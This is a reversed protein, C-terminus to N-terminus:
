PATILARYLGEREILENHTGRQVIEGRDIVVIEDADRIVSLRHAIIICACGRRRLKDDIELETLPDLAATAEDLVLVAPNTAFARAIELRQRQGGSFNRGHEEVPTDYKGPRLMIDDHVAADRLAQTIDLDATTPNWLAVNERVTGEFLMIDQDVYAITETLHSPPIERIPRDDVTVTGSWPELLGCILKGITSKGSGSGGVLALRQGPRILLNFNEILPPEKSSYGFSLNELRVLGRAIPPSEVNDDNMGRVAREEPVYNRVDDLRAIDGKITQLNAGFQVLGEVPRSFNQALSQFAVLGGITLAGELIRLGGFGLIAVTTLSVLLPPVVNLTYTLQGLKQQALLTNAHIGSWRSFFDSETGNAKLTEIMHLGNVSTGVLKGQEKLLRRYLNERARSVLRLALGNIVVSVFVVLTLLPDYSLMVPAYIMMTLMNIANTAFDGSIMRAVQDNSAVRNAIDGAFRQGFFIMPLTVVHWFFQSTAVIALKTEMRAMCMQQLWTLAGQLLAAIGLGILLPALMTDNRPILVDDVFVKSLTPIALGPIVLLLTALVVFFLAGRAHGLRSLLSSFVSPREGGRTFGTGPAFGLCVGTFSEDFERYSLRRPGEAPDNIYVKDGKLGELVVFHNFNWFIIMPFPLDFIRGPERRYGQALLGYERAARLISAAKSGDRSIGCRVRLEELPVWRGYHALIMSLCAAGCETAEMQLITPAGRRGGRKRSINPKLEISPNM